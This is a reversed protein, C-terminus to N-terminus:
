LVVWTVSRIWSCRPRSCARIGAPTFSSTTCSAPMRTSCATAFTCSASISPARSVTSTTNRKRLEHREVTMVPSASGTLTSAENTATHAKPKVRFVIDSSPRDSAIPMRISSAMTTRSFM